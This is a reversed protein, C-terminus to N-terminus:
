RLLVMKKVVQEKGATLIYLYVGSPFESGDWEVQYHGAKQIKSVLTVVKQGLLNYVSLEVDNTISLEYNIITAPNFPNPYNQLLTITSPYDHNNKIDITSLRLDFDAIVPLHDSASHLADAVEASVASNTGSNIAQNFHNGDNGYAEYSGPEVKELLSESVLIFDFRDDMGGTAGGDGLDTIRTSQSHIDSFSSNNHWGGPRDIPDFSQGFNEPEEALLKQYAPEDSGYLNLDGTVIFRTNQPHHNLHNNRLITVEALRQLDENEEGFDPNGAKLHASYVFLTDETRPFRIKYEAIDRLDTVIYEASLVEMIFPNYFIHNDSTYGDHFPITAFKNNLVTEAFSDVAEQSEIEQVVILDPDISEVVTKLYENRETGDYQLLNYTVIRFSPQAFVLTCSILLYILGVTKISRKM